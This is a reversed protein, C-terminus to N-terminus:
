LRAATPNQWFPTGLFALSMGFRAQAFSKFLGPDVANNKFIEWRGYDDPLL